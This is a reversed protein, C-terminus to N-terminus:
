KWARVGFVLRTTGPEKGEARFIRATEFFRRQWSVGVYPGFERRIEYRLRLGLELENLGSGVGFEEVRQAALNTEIRPQLLIRQTVFLDRVFTLRASVDGDSSIFLLTELDSKFPVFAEVGFVAQGRTVARGKFTATQVGGGVQLDYYRKVFRGYLVQVDISRAPATFSQEGESKFWIRNLDGGHWGNFDWHVQGDDQPTLDILDGLLFTNRQTDEVPMPWGPPPFRDQPAPTQAFDLGPVLIMLAMLM